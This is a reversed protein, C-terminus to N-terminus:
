NFKAPKDGRGNQTSKFNNKELFYLQSQARIKNNISKLKVIKKGLSKDRKEM